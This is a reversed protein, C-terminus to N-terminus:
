LHSFTLFSPYLLLIYSSCHIISPHDSKSEKNSGRSGRFGLEGCVLPSFLRHERKSETSSDLPMGLAWAFAGLAAPSSFKPHHRLVIKTSYVMLMDGTTKLYIQVRRFRRFMGWDPPFINFRKPPIMPQLYLVEEHREFLIPPRGMNKAFVIVLQVCTNYYSPTTTITIQYHALLLLHSTM